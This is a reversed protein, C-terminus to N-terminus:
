NTWCLLKQRTKSFNPFFRYSTIFSDPYLPNGMLITLSNERYIKLATLKICLQLIVCVSKFNSFINNTCSSQCNSLSLYYFRGVLRSILIISKPPAVKSLSWWEVIMFVLCYRAGSTISSSPHFVLLSKHDTPHIKNSIYLPSSKKGM